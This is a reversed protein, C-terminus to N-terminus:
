GCKVIPFRCYVDIPGVEIRRNVLSVKAFFANDIFDCRKCRGYNNATRRTLIKRLGSLAGFIPATGNESNAIPLYDGM